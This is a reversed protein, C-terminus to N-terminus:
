TQKKAKLKWRKHHELSDQFKIIIYRKRGKSTAPTDSEGLLKNKKGRLSNSYMRM